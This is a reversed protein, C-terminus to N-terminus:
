NESVVGVVCARGVWGSGGRQEIKGQSWESHELAQQGRRAEWVSSQGAERAGLCGKTGPQVLSFFHNLVTAGLIPQTSLM